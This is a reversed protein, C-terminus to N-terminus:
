SEILFFSNTNKLNLAKISNIISSLKGIWASESKTIEVDKDGNKQAEMLQPILIASYALSSGVAIQFSSAILTALVQLLLWLYVICILSVSYRCLSVQPWILKFNSKQTYNLSKRSILVEEVSHEDSTPIENIRYIITILNHM